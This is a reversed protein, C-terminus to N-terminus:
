SASRGASMEKHLKRLDDLSKAVKRTPSANRAGTVNPIVPPTPTAQGAGAPPAAAGGPAPVQPAAAPAQGQNPVITNGLIRLAQAVAQDATVRQGTTRELFDAQQCAFEWFATESGLRANYSDAITKIEPRALATQLEFARAPLETQEHGQTMTQVREQLAYNEKRLRQQNEYAARAEPPMDQLQMKQHLWQAVAQPKIGITEFVSDLDGNNRYMIVSQVSKKLVNYEPMLTKQIQQLQQQANQYNTKVLDLGYAKEHLERLNKETEADKVVGRLWEPIEHEKGAAKFKWNPTWAPAQPTTVPVGPTQSNGGASNVSEPTKTVQPASGQASSQTSGQAASAGASAAGTGQSGTDGTQGQPTVGESM